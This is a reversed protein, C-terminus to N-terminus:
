QIKVSGASTIRLYRSGSSQQTLTMWPDSTPSWEFAVGRSDFSVYFSTGAISSNLRVGSYLQNLNIWPGALQTSSQINPGTDSPWAVGSSSRGLMRYQNKYSSGGGVNFGKIQYQWGTQTAKSRAERVDGALQRTAADLRSSKMMSTFFPLAALTMVIIIGVVVVLEILTYGRRGVQGARGAWGGM